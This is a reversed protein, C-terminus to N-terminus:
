GPRDTPKPPNGQRDAEREGKRKKERRRRRPEAARGGPPGQLM